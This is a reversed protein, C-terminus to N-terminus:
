NKFTHTELFVFCFLCFLVWFVTSYNRLPPDLM